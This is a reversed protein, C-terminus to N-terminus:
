KCSSSRMAAKMSMRYQQLHRLTLLCTGAAVCGSPLRWAALAGVEKEKLVLAGDDLTDGRVSESIWYSHTQVSLRNSLRIRIRYRM